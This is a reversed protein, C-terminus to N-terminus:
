SRRSESFGQHREPFAVVTGSRDTSSLQGAGISMAVAAGHLAAADESAVILTMHSERVLTRLLTYFEDRERLSPIVAPEDVLLLRPQRILARALIVRVREVMPLSSVLEDACHPVGVEDLVRRAKYRADSLASGYSVLTLVLYDVVPERPTPRWADTSVLGIASHFLRGRQLSSMRSMDQGEFRVTGTDPQELGSALRLLTSKGSRRAGLVGVETGADIDFSVRDLVVITRAGDPYRKSVNTFSLLPQM